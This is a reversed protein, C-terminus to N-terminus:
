KSILLKVEVDNFTTIKIGLKEAIEGDEKSVDGIKIVHKLTPCQDAKQLLISLKNGDCVIM